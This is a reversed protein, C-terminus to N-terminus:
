EAGVIERLRRETEAAVVRGREELLVALAADELVVREGREVDLAHAFQYVDGGRAAALHAVAQLEADAALVAAIRGRHEEAVLGAEVVYRARGIAHRDRPKGRRLGCEAHGELGFSAPPAGGRRCARAPPPGQRGPARGRRRPPAPMARHPPAPAGRAQRGGGGPRRGGAPRATAPRRR